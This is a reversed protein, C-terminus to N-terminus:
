LISFAWLYSVFEESHFLELFQSRDSDLDVSFLILVLDTPNFLQLSAFGFDLAHLKSRKIM